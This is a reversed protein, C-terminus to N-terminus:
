SAKAQRQIKGKVAQAGAKLLLRLADNVAAESPFAMFLEPEILVVNTGRKLRAAHPNPVAKSFDYEARMDSEEHKRVKKM